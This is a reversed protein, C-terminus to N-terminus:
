RRRQWVLSWVVFLRRPAPWVRRARLLEMDVHHYLVGVGSSQLDDGDPSRPDGVSVVDIHVWGPMREAQYSARLPSGRDSGVAELPSVRRVFRSCRHRTLHATASQSDDTGIDGLVHAGMSGSRSSVGTSDAPLAEGPM